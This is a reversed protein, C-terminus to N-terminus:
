CCLFSARECLSIFLVWQRMCVNVQLVASPLLDTFGHIQAFVSHCLGQLVTHAFPPASQLLPRQSIITAQGGCIRLPWQSYM